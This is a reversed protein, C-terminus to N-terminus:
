VARGGQAKKATYRALLFYAMRQARTEAEKLDKVNLTRQYTEIDDEPGDFIAIFEGPTGSLCISGLHNGNSTVRATSCRGGSTAPNYRTWNETGM